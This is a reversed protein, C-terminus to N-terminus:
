KKRTQAPTAGAAVLERFRQREAEFRASVRAKEANADAIVKEQHQMAEANGAFSRKLKEPMDRKPYFEKEDELKKREGKLDDMRKHAREIVAERTQLARVRADEIDQETGYTELLAVDKRMQARRKDAEDNQRREEAERAAKQEPTLPPEIVRRTSGDARLEKIPRNWCEAPPLDATINKGATTTCSYLSSQSQAAAPLSALLLWAGAAFFVDTRVM